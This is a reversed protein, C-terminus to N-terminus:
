DGEAFNKVRDRQEDSYREAASDWKLVGKLTFCMRKGGVHVYKGGKSLVVEKKSHGDGAVEIDEEVEKLIYAARQIVRAPM